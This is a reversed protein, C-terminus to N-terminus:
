KIELSATWDPRSAEAIVYNGVPLDLLFEQFRSQLVASAVATANAAVPTVSLNLTRSLTRNEIVLLFPGPSRTISNPQVGHYETVYVVEIGNPSTPLKPATPSVPATPTSQASLVTALFVALALLLTMYIAASSNAKKQFM